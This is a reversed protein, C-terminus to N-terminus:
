RIVSSVSAQFSFSSALAIRGILPLILIKSMYGLSKEVIRQAKPEDTHTHTHTHTHTNLRVSSPPEVDFELNWRRLTKKGM